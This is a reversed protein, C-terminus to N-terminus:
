RLDFPVKFMPNWNKREAKPDTAILIIPTDCLILEMYKSAIECLLKLSDNIDNYTVSTPLGRSDWHAIGRDVILCMKATRDRLTDIDEEIASISILSNDTIRGDVTFKSFLQKRKENGEILHRERYFSYMFQKSCKNIQELLKMLSVNDCGSKSQRRVGVAAQFGYCDRVFDVFPRGQHSEIHNLNANVVEIFCDHHQQYNQLRMLDKGIQGCWDKWKDFEAETLKM